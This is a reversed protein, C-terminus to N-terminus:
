ALKLHGCSIAGNVWVDEFSVVYTPDVPFVQGLFGDITNSASGRQVQVDRFNSYAAIHADGRGLEGSGGDLADGILADVHDIAAHRRCVFQVENHAVIIVRGSNHNRGRVIRLLVVADFEATSLGIRNAQICTQGVDAVQRYTPIKRFGRVFARYRMAVGG